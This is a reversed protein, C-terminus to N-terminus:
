PLTRLKNAGLYLETLHTLHGIEPPLSVLQYGNLDLTKWKEEKAQAVLKLLEDKTMACESKQCM